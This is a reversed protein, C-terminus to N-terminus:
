PSRQMPHTPSSAPRLGKLWLRAAEVHIGGVVRAPLWATGLIARAVATRTFPAHRANFWARLIRQGEVEYDVGLRLTNGPLSASFRYVGAVTNFPSVHFMKPTPASTEEPRMCYVHRGRFTNNVEFALALVADDAGLAYYTTMPNFVWGFVRPYALMLIRTIGADLGHAAFTSRLQQALPKTSGDGHDRTHVTLLAPRDHGALPALTNMAHLQDLDVLVAFVRYKLLHSVPSFRRHLVEGRYLSFPALRATM